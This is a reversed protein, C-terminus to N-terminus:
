ILVILMNNVGVWTQKVRQWLSAVNKVNSCLSTFPFVYIISPSWLTASVSLSMLRATPANCQGVNALVYMCSCVCMIPLRLPLCSYSRSCSSVGLQHSLVASLLSSTSQHLTHTLLTKLHCSSQHKIDRRWPQRITLWRLERHQQCRVAARPRQHEQCTTVSSYCRNKNPQPTSITTANLQM